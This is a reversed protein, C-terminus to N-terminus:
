RISRCEPRRRRSRRRQLRHRSRLLHRRPLLSPLPINGGISDFDAVLQSWDFGAPSKQSASNIIEQTIACYLNGGASSAAYKATAAYTITGTMAWTSIIIGQPNCDIGPFGHGNNEDPNGAVDWVFGSTSPMPSVWADPLDVGYELNEFLWIATQIEEKNTPDISLWGMIQNAGAPAGTSQWYNMATQEDCGQDTAPNGPVYGGIASYLAIIQAQTFLYPVGSGLGTIIGVVHAMMAIVCDGLSDNMYMQGLVSQVNASTAYGFPGTPPTPLAKRIYNKLSLRPGRAKPKTRGFKVMRNISPAFVEKLPM